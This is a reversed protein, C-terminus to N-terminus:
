AKAKAAPKRGRKKPKLSPDLQAAEALLRDAEVQLTAMQTKMQEAQTVLNRAIDVDGLVGQTQVGAAQAAAQVGAAKKDPDALGANADLEAAKQAAESGTELDRIIKNIEDLRAGPQNPRPMMIVDQTRVKKMFGERHLSNLLTQGDAGVISHLAEGLHNAEQGKVSQIANMLDDHTQQKLSDPYTVLAMHDEGPVERFVVAVRKEGHKGVHKIM